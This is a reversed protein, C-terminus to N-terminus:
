CVKDEQEYQAMFASLEPQPLGCLAACQLCAGWVPPSCIASVSLEGPLQSMLLERFPRCNLLLSGSLLVQRSLPSKACVCRILEALRCVNTEVIREAVEDGSQWADMVYPAFAAIAAPESGYLAPISNWVTDKLQREVMRTLATPPGSKDRDELAALLAQRGIEYGSGVPDLKWGGGGARILKGGASAYVVSGTGCIVAVANDPDDACALVSRIDSDCKLPIGPYRKRLEATIVSAHDGSAMGACGIFIGLLRIDTQLMQDIGRSLVQICTERSTSNPNSGPLVLRKLLQGTPRILVFETKTGGGDVALLATQEAPATGLLADASVNLIRSLACVHSIDPLSEGREWKSIAQVSIYLQQALEAQKMHKSRRITRLNEGFSAHDLM